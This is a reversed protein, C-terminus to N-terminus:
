LMLMLLWYANKSFSVMFASLKLWSNSFCCELASELIAWVVEFAVMELSNHAINTQKM